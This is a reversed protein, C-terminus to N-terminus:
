KEPLPRTLRSMLPALYLQVNNEECIIKLKNLLYESVEEGENHEKKFGISTARLWYEKSLNKM